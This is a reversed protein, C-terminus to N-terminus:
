REVGYAMGKGICCKKYKKGSGCPCPENRGIKKKQKVTEKADVDEKSDSYTISHLHEVNERSFHSAPDATHREFHSKDSDSYVGRAIREIEAQKLTPGIRKEEFARRVDPMLSEDHFSAVDDAVLGAFTPDITTNLLKLLHAIIGSKSSPLKKALASLSTTAATRVFSELTEDESFKELQGISDVGFSVLLSPVNETLWDNLDEGHYRITDLLLELAERSKILALIHMAHIPSWASGPGDQYWHRGDQIMRRLWFIADARGAIELALTKNVYLELAVMSNVIAETPAKPLGSKLPLWQIGREKLILDGFEEHTEVCILMGCDRCKMAGVTNEPLKDTEM